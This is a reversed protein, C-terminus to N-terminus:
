PINPYVYAFFILTGYYNNLVKYYSVCINLVEGNDAKEILGAGIILNNEQSLSQLTQVSQGSPVPEALTKTKDRAPNRVHWYGTICMEPFTVIDTHNKAANNVFSRIRGPNYAKDDPLHNFQVSAANITKRRM